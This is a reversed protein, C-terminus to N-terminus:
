FEQRLIVLSLSYGWVQLMNPDPRLLSCSRTQSPSVDRSSIHHKSM